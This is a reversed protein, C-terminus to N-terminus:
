NSNARYWIEISNGAPDTVFDVTDYTADVTVSSNNYRIGTANEKILYVDAIADINACLGLKVGTAVNFWLTAAATGASFTVTPSTDIVSFANSTYNIKGLVCTVSESVADGKANYGSFTVTATSETDTDFSVGITRAPFHQTINTMNLTYVGAPCTATTILVTSVAKSSAAPPNTWSEHMSIM